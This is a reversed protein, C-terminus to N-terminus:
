YAVQLILIPKASNQMKHLKILMMAVLRLQLIVVHLLMLVLQLLNIVLQKQKIALQLQNIAIDPVCAQLAKHQRM